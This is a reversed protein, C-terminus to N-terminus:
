QKIKQWPNDSFDYIFWVDELPPAREPLPLGSENHYSLFSNLERFGSPNRAIGTYLYSDGNRFEIGGMPHVGYQHCARVFDVMGTSNNIDTLALADIGLGAAREVLTEVAMTGYRLSYYSHCNLYM